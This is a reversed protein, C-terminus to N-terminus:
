RRGSKGMVKEWKSPQKKPPNEAEHRLQRFQNMALMRRYILINKPDDIPYDDLWDWDVIEKWVKLSEGQLGKEPNKYAALIDELILDTNHLAQVKLKSLEDDTLPM